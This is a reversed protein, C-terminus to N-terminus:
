ARSEEQVYTTSVVARAKHSIPMADALFFITGAFLLTDAVYNVATNIDSGEKAVVFMPLNICLVVITVGMGLWTTTARSKKNILMTFGSTLLLVGICFGWVHKWPMWAPSLQPLPVGPTFEPHLLHEVGFFLFVVGALVRCVTIVRNAFAPRRAAIRTAALTWAGLGFTFDRLVVAWAFRDKPADAVRPIHIMLVFMFFMLGLLSASIEVHRDLIISVAAAFLAIGVFYAFFLHAPMWPPVMDKIFGASALHEGGFVALAFPVFVRGLVPLSDLKFSLQKRNAILGFLLFAVGALQPWFLFRWYIHHPSM